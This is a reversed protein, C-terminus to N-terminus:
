KLTDKKAAANKIDAFLKLQGKTGSLSLGAYELKEFRGHAVHNRLDNMKRCMKIFDDSVGKDNYLEVLGIKDGFHLKDLAIELMNIRGGLGKEVFLIMKKLETEVFYSMWYVFEVADIQQDSLGFRKKVMIRGLDLKIKSFDVGLKEFNSFFADPDSFFQDGIEEKTM